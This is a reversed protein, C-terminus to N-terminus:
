TPRRGRRKVGSEKFAASMNRYCIKAAAEPDYGPKSSVMGSVECSVDGDYHAYVLRLLKPYDITGAEGPLRFVVSGNEQVADKVALHGIIPIATNFTEEMTLNRFAYHSYDYVMSLRYHVDLPLHDHLWRVDAPQSVAGGRHPKIALEFDHSKAVEVWKALRDRIQEREAMWNRGGLTTQVLPPSKDGLDHALQGALKLREIALKEQADNEPHLHEMLSTLWLGSDRIQRSLTERRNPALQAPDADWDAMIAIEVSDFGIAAIMAIAKETPLTKAGYTSFGLPLGHDPFEANSPSIGASILLPAAVAGLAERRSM